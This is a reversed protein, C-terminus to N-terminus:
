VREVGEVVLVFSGAIRRWAEWREFVWKREQKRPVKRESPQKVVLHFSAQASVTYVLSVSRQVNLAQVLHSPSSPFLLSDWLCYWQILLVGLLMKRGIVVFNSSVGHWDHM